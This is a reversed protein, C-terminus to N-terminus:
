HLAMERRTPREFRFDCREGGAALVTTRHWTIGPSVGEYLLDDVRCYDPTLEQAGLQTLQDLYFCGTM